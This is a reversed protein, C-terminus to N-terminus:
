YKQLFWKSENYLPMKWIEWQQIKDDDSKCKEFFCFIWMKLSIKHWGGVLKSPRGGTNGPTDVQGGILVDFEPGLPVITLHSWWWKMVGGDNGSTDVCNWWWWNMIVLRDYGNWWWWEIMVLGDDGNWLWWEMMLLGDNVNWWWWEIMVMGDDCTWLWWEM